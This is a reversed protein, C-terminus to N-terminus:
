GCGGTDGCATCTYCAGTRVTMAGCSSCFPADDSRGDSTPEGNVIAMHDRSKVEEETTVSFFKQELWWFIYDIISSAFTHDKNGTMGSPEFRMHQFKKSLVDLPVGYQLSISVSTAFADMLGSITSGQKSMTVFLEGPMGNEYLGVTIYGEHGAVSFKHTVSKREDPLKTRVSKILVPQINVKAEKKGVNLPQTQKSGDRYIAISKLCMESARIYINEIEEVTIDNPVNVTKSIAGSLFPQVAAMMKVHAMYDICRKGDPHKLACDFVPLDEVNFFSTVPLAELPKGDLIWDVIERYNYESYGLAILAPIVSNSTMSITGGGVLKKVKLIALEPEIGTTDCDMMFSITGTPAIVSIQSNRITPVHEEDKKWYMLDQWTNVAAAYLFDPIKDSNIRNRTAMDHMNLVANMPEINEAYGDFSGLVEALERSRKYGMGTMMSTIAAAWNRAEESDYPIGIQMLLAGLNSYGLGLQRFRHANEKIEPTPYSARGVIIDMATIMISVAQKFERLQFYRGNPDYFKLLNLSALNCASNDLHMYESCPNSANIPGTNPCTHWDNITSDFQMGPDGCRWAAEAIKRLIDRAQPTEVVEGEANVLKWPDDDYVAKMFEIPVRVSHNANQFAVTGYAEGDISSDYGAAILAQAKDEEKVKCEIFEMIDPHDVNLIVMKAARRTKGGSKIAGSSVDAAKMFSLPGSPKGGGSISDKSSRIQSLNIGSGSGGKFIMGEKKYWDLISEMNDDVSLIFCASCQPEKEVGCNFWVPSNFTARQDRILYSLEQNFINGSQSNFYGDQIGWDTITDVVRSILNIISCERDSSGPKGRFYKSAVINVANDSWATPAEIGHQEFIREGEANEIIASRTEVTYTDGM